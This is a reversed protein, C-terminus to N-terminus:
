QYLAQQVAIDRKGDAKGVLGILGFARRTGHSPTEQGLCKSFVFFSIFLKLNGKKVKKSTYLKVTQAWKSTNLSYTSETQSNFDTEDAESNETASAEHKQM